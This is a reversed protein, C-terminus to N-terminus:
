DRNFYMPQIQLNSYAGYIIKEITELSSGYKIDARYHDQENQTCAKSLLFPRGQMRYNISLQNLLDTLISIGTAVKL